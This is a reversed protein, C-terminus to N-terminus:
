EAVREWYAPYEAPSWTCVVNEPATCIYNEGEFSIKDGGYYWHGVIYPPYDAEPKSPEGEELARIRQELEMVKAFLDTDGKVTAHARALEELETMEDPTLFGKAAFSRIRALMSDLKYEGGEIVSKFMNYM